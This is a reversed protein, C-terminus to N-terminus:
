KKTAYKELVKKSADELSLIGEGGQLLEKQKAIEASSASIVVEGQRKAEMSRMWLGLLGKVFLISIITVIVSILGFFLIGSVSIDDYRAKGHGSAHEDESHGSNATTESM